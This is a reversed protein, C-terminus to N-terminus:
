RTRLSYFRRFFFACVFGILFIMTTIPWNEALYAASFIPTLLIRAGLRRSPTKAIWQAYPPAVRYYWNSFARGWAFKYLYDSRFRRLTSVEPAWLSGYAATAIFCNQKEKFLGIVEDPRVQHCNTGGNECETDQTTSGDDNAYFGINGTDDEIASRCSYQVLNTFGSIEDKTPQGGIVPVRKLGPGYSPIVTFDTGESCLFLLSAIPRGNPPDQTHVNEITAKGDGPFLSYNCLGATCNIKDSRVLTRFSSPPEYIILSVTTSDDSGIMLGDSGSDLGVRLTVACASGSTGCDSVGGLAAKASSILDIWRVAITVLQNAATTPPLSVVPSVLSDTTGSQQITIKPTGIALTTSAFTITLELNNHVRTENCIQYNDECSNCTSINTKQACNGANADGGLGGLIRVSTNTGGSAFGVIRSAGSISQLKIDAFGVSSLFLLLFLVLSRM